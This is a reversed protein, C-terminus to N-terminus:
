LRKALESYATIIFPMQPLITQNDVGILPNHAATDGLFKIGKIENATRPILLPVGNLKERSATEIMDALGVWRGPRAKDEILGRNAHKSVVIIILKELIKRLLFATCNPNRGFNAQLEEIEVRFNRRMKTQLKESFLDQEIELVKSKKGILRLARERPVSALVWYNIKDGAPKVAHIIGAEMFKRMYTQVLATIWAKGFRERVKLVVMASPVPMDFFDELVLQRLLEHRTGAEIPLDRAKEKLLKASM